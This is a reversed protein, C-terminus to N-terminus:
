SVARLYESVDEPWGGAARAVPFALVTGVVCGFSRSLM